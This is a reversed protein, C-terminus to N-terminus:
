PRLRAIVPIFNQNTTLYEAYTIQPSVTRPIWIDARDSLGRFKSPVVGVIALSVGNLRVAREATFTTDGFVRCLRETVVAVASPRAPTTRARSLCGGVRRCPASCPILRRARWRDLVPATTPRRRTLSAPSYTAILDFSRQLSTLREARPFSWRERRPSEGAPSRQLFVIELREADPFPAERWLAARVIAFTTTLAWALPSCSSRPSSWERSRM